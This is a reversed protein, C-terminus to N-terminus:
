LSAPDYYIMVRLEDLDTNAPDDQSVHAYRLRMMLGKLPGSALTWQLNLDYEDKAFQGRDQPDSAKVWLGYL